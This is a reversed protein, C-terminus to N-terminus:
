FGSKVLVNIIKSSHLIAPSFSLDLDHLSVANEKSPKKSSLKYHVYQHGGVGWFFSLNKTVKALTCKGSEEEWIISPLFVFALSTHSEM